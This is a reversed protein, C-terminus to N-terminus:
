PVIEIRSVPHIEAWNDHVDDLVLTGTIAVHSGPPPIVLADRFTDCAPKADAQKVSYRCVIEFVLNGEEHSRNADNILDTFASDVHLWGHTDGDSEHRVGDRSPHASGATADVLTGTVTLCARLITLRRPNYVHQWLGDGCGVFANSGSVDLDGNSNQRAISVLLVLAVAFLSVVAIALLFRRRTAHRGDPQNSL